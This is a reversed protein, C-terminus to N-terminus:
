AIGKRCAACRSKVHPHEKRYKAAQEPTALRGPRLRGHADVHDASWVSKGARKAARWAKDATRRWRFGRLEGDIYVYRLDRRWGAKDREERTTM